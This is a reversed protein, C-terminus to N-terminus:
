SGGCRSVAAGASQNHCIKYATAFLDHANLEIRREPTYTRRM